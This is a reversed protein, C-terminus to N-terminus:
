ISNIGRRLSLTTLGTLCLVAFVVMATRSTDVRISEPGSLPPPSGIFSWGGPRDRHFAAGDYTYSWAPFLCVLAALALGARIANRQPHSM